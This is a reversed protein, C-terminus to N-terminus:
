QKFRFLLFLVVGITGSLLTWIGLERNQRRESEEELEIIKTSLRGLQRRM